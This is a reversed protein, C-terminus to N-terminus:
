NCRQEINVMIFLDQLENNVKYREKGIVAFGAKLLNEVVFNLGPMWAISKLLPATFDENLSYRKM